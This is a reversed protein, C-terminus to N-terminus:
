KTYILTSLKEEAFIDNAIELLQKSTIKSIREAVVSNSENMGFFLFSKAMNLAYNERNENAIALQGMLQKKARELQSSPMEKERLGKLEKYIVNLCKETDDHETGFYINILGDDSYATYASEITYALGRRERVAINLKSNMGPGGLINNLLYLPLRREDSLSYARAGILAHTQHTSLNKRVHDPVYLASKQRTKTSYKAAVDGFYKEALRMVKKFPINGVSFFLIRDTCYNNAVFRLANETTYEQLREADGLINRGLQSNKFVISEFEDYILESPSDNYSNIEEIIVDVEKEIEHSPFTPHFVIDSCLDVAKEFDATLVTSYVFTEEKTTYANIEGGVGELRNLIHWSNRKETGKFLMHEIFHAMGSEDEEEDRTGANIAFGCYAVQSVDEKHVIRVGNPLTATHIHIDTNMM